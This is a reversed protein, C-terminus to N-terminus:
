GVRMTMWVEGQGGASRDGLSRIVPNALAASIEPADYQLDTAMLRMVALDQLRPTSFRVPDLKAKRGLILTGRKMGAAVDDGAEGGVVITGAVMDSAVADGCSGAVVITGRRMRHGVHHGANGQVILRGGSMGSRRGSLPGGLYDGVHGSVQLMGGSMQCGVESSADGRLEVHGGRMQTGLGAGVNGEILLLRRRWGNGVRHLFPIDGSIVVQDDTRKVIRFLQGALVSDSPTSGTLVLQSAEKENTIEELRSLASADLAQSPPEILHLEWGTM